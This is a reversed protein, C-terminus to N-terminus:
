ITLFILNIVKRLKSGAVDTVLFNNAFTIFIINAFGV